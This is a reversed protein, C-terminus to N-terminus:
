EKVQSEQYKKGVDSPVRGAIAIVENSERSNDIIWMGIIPLGEYTGSQKAANFRQLAEAGLEGREVIKRTPGGQTPSEFDIIWRRM